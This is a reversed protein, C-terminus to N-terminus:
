LRTIEISDCEDDASVEILNSGRALKIQRFVFHGDSLKEATYKKDRGNVLIRLNERNTICEIDTTKGETEEEDPAAISIFGESSFRSRFYYFSDYLRERDCGTLGRKGNTQRSDSLVGPFYAVIGASRCFSNWMRINHLFHERPSMQTKLPSETYVAFLKEPYKKKLDSVRGTLAIYGEPTNDCPLNVLTIKANAPIDKVTEKAGINFVTILHPAYEKVLADIENFYGEDAEDPVVIFTLSPHSSKQLLFDRLANKDEIINGSHTMEYWFIIGERDCFSLLDTKSPLSSAILANTDLLKINELDSKVGSLDTLRIGDLPLRLSNLRFFGDDSLDAEKFAFPVNVEDLVGADRLLRVNLTYFYAGSQGDWIEPSPINLTVDASTPKATVSAIENNKMGLVTYSVVDYNNPRVIDSKIHVNGNKETKIRIGDGPTLINLHSSGATILRVGAFCFKGDERPVPTVHVCIDYTKNREADLTLLVRLPTVFPAHESLLKEGSFVKIFASIQSFEIYVTKGEDNDGATWSSRWEGEPMSNIDHFFPLTVPSDTFGKKEGQTNQTFTWSNNFDIYERM